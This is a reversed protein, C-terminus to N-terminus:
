DLLDDLDRLVPALKEATRERAEATSYVGAQLRQRVEAVREARVEPTAALQAHGADLLSRMEAVKRASPSIELREGADAAAAKEGRVDETRQKRLEESTRQTQQFRALARPDGATTRDIKNAGM